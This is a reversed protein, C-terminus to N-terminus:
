LQDLPSKVSPDIQVLHLYVMTTRLSSHGLLQQILKLNSGQELMHTAFAHRLSHPSIEKKVGAKEAARKVIRRVSSASYLAGLPRGEFYITLPNPIHM